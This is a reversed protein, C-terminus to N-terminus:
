QPIPVVGRRLTRRANTDRMFAEWSGVGFHRCVVYKPIWRVFHSGSNPYYRLTEARLQDMDRSQVMWERVLNRETVMTENACRKCLKRLRPDDCDVACYTPFRSMCMMCMTHQRLAVLSQRKVPKCPLDVNELVLYIPKRFETNHDASRLTLTYLGYRSGWTRETETHKKLVRWERARTMTVQQTFTEDTHMGHVAVGMVLIEDLGGTLSTMIQRRFRATTLCNIRLVVEHAYEKVSMETSNTDWAAIWLAQGMRWHATDTAHRLARCCMGLRLFAGTDLKRTILSFVDTSQLAAMLTM